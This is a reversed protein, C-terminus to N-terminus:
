VGACLLVGVHELLNFDGGACVACAVLEGTNAAIIIVAFQAVSAVLAPRASNIASAVSGANNSGQTAHSVVEDVSPSVALKNSLYGM